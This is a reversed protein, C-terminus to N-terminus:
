SAIACEPDQTQVAVGAGGLSLPPQEPMQPVLSTWVLGTARVLSIADSTAAYIAAGPGPALEFVGDLAVHSVVGTEQDIFDLEKQVDVALQTGDASM